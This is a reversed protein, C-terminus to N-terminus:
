SLLQRHGRISDARQTLAHNLVHIRALQTRPCLSPVDAAAFPESCEQLSRRLSGRELVDASELQVQSLRSRANAIAVDDHGPQPEQEPHRQPAEVKRGLDIV